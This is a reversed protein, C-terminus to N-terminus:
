TVPRTWLATWMQPSGKGSVALRPQGEQFRSFVKTTEAGHYGDVAITWGRDRLRQQYRKTVDSYISGEVSGGPWRGQAGVTQMHAQTVSGIRESRGVGAADQFNGVTEQMHPGFVGDRATVFGLYTLDKQMQLVTAGDDGRQLVWYEEAPAPKPIVIPKLVQAGLISQIRAVTLNSAAWWSLEVHLHDDHPNAGKYPRWGSHAYKASWIRREYIVCQIGLEGSNLRLAEALVNGDPDRLPFGFDCARGEGHLSTTSGGRVSRCNYIGLNRAGLPGYAGLVWAMLAKAGPQPGSTCSVAGKYTTLLSM